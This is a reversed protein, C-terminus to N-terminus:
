ESFEETLQQTNKSKKGTNDVFDANQVRSKSMKSM